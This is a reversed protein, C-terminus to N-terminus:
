LLGAKRAAAVQAAAKARAPAMIAEFRPDKRLDALLPDIDLLALRQVNGADIGQQLAALAADHEGLQAHGLVEMWGRGAVLATYPRDQRAAMAAEIVARGRTADGTHLM